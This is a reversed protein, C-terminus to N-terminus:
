YAQATLADPIHTVRRLGSGKIRYAAVIGSANRLVMYDKGEIREHGSLVESPQQPIDDTRRMAAVAREYLEETDITTKTAM